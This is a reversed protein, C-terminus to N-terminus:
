RAQVVRRTRNKADPLALDSLLHPSKGFLHEQISRLRTIAEEIRLRTGTDVPIQGHEVKSLWSKTRNVAAAVVALSLDARQREDRIRKGDM